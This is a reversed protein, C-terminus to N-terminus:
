PQTRGFPPTHDLTALDRRARRLIRRDRLWAGTFVIIVAALSLVIWVDM